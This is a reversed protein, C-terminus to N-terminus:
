PRLPPNEEANPIRGQRPNEACDLGARPFALSLSLSAEGVFDYTKVEDELYLSALTRGEALDIEPNTEV